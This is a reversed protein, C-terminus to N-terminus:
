DYATSQVGGGKAVGEVRPRKGWANRWGTEASEFTERLRSM